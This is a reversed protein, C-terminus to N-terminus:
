TAAPKTAAPAAPPAAGEPKLTGLVEGTAPDTVMVENTAAAAPEAPTSSTPADVDNKKLPMRLDGVVDALAPGREAMFDKVNQPILLVPTGLIEGMALLNDDSLTVGFTAQIGNKADVAFKSITIVINDFGRAAAINVARKTLDEGLLSCRYIAYKQEGETMKSWPLRLDKVLGLIADRVDGRLTPGEIPPPETALVVARVCEHAWKHSTFNLDRVVAGRQDASLSDWGVGFHQEFLAQLDTAMEGAVANAAILVDASIVVHRLDLEPEAPAEPAAAATEPAPEAGALPEAAAATEPAAPGAEQQQEPPAASTTTEETGPRPPIREAAKGRM